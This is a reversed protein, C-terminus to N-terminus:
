LVSNDLHKPDSLNLLHQEKSSFFADTEVFFINLLVITKLTALLLFHKKLTFDACKRFSWTVSFVSFHHQFNQKAM